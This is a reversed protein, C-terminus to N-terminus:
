IGPCDNPAYGLRSLEAYDHRPLWDRAPDYELWRQRNGIEAFRRLLVGLLPHQDQSRWILSWTYLPTPDCLPVSCIGASDPLPIEAPLLTFRRPEARIRDILHDLGLNAGGEEAVIGFQGAFQRLFDLRDLSAPCWL